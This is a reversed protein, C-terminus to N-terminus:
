YQMRRTTYGMGQVEQEKAVLRECQDPSYIAVTIWENWEAWMELHTDKM